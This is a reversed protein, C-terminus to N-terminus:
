AGGGSIPEGKADLLAPLPFDIAALMGALDELVHSYLVARQFDNQELAVNRYVVMLKWARSVDYPAVADATIDAAEYYEKEEDTLADYTLEPDKAITMHESEFIEDTPEPTLM